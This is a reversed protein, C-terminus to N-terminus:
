FFRVTYWKTIVLKGGGGRDAGGVNAFTVFDQVADLIRNLKVYCVRSEYLKRSFGLCLPLPM